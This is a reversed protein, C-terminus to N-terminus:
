LPSVVKVERYRAEIMGFLGFLLLGVAVVGLLLPGYAADQLARLAQGTGGAEAPNATMAARLAFWAIILFVIGRAAYGVRGASIVANRAPVGNSLHQAFRARSAELFNGAAGALLALGVLGILWVGGPLAMLWASGSDAQADGTGGTPRSLALNAAFLALGLHVLGSVFKGGRKVLGKAAAGDREPDFWAESFRWVAYGILGLAIVALLLRGAGGDALSQLASRNDNPRAGSQAAVIAFWGILMYVLGRAAFGLRALSTLRDDLNMVILGTRSRRTGNGGIM